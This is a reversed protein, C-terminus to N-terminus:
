APGGRYMVIGVVIVFEIATYMSYAVVLPRLRQRLAYIVFVVSSIAFFVWTAASVSRSDHARFISIAQPLEFLPTAVTFFYMMYDFPQRKPPTKTKARHLHHRHAAAHRVM